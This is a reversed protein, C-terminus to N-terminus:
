SGCNVSLFSVPQSGLHELYVHGSNFIGKFSDKMHQSPHTFEMVHFVSITCVEVDPQLLIEFFLGWLNLFEVLVEVSLAGQIDSIYSHNTLVQLM